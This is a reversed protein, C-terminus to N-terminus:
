LPARCPGSGPHSERIATRPTVTTRPHGIAPSSKDAQAAAEDSLNSLRAGRHKVERNPRRKRVRLLSVRGTVSYTNYSKCKPATGSPLRLRLGGLSRASGSAAQYIKWDNCEHWRQQVM